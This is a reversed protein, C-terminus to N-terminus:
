FDNQSLELPLRLCRLWRSLVHWCFVFWSFVIFFSFCHISFYSVCSVFVIELPQRVYVYYKCNVGTPSSAKTRANTSHTGSVYIKGGITIYAALDWTWQSSARGKSSFEKAFVQTCSMKGFGNQLEQSECWEMKFRSFIRPMNLQTEAPCRSAPSPGSQKMTWWM